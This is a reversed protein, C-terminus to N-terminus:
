SAKTEPTISIREGKNGDIAYHQGSIIAVDYKIKIQIKITVLQQGRSIFMIRWKLTSYGLNM